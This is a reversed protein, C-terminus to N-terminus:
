RLGYLSRKLKCVQGPAAKSYGLPPTMYIDEDIYGHLFANNIDIQELEWNHAAAVVIITRVTTFRAVLSFTHKYDKGKIQKEGRAVLSAKCREVSGDSNFKVKYM